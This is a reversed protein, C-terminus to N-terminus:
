APTMKAAAERPTYAFMVESTAFPPPPLGRFSSWLSRPTGPALPLLSRSTSQISSVIAVAHEFRAFAFSLRFTLLLSMVLGCLLSIQDYNENLFGYEVLAAAGAGVAAFLLAHPACRPLASGTCSFIVTYFAHPNYYIVM